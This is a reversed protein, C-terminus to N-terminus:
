DWPFQLLQFFLPLAHTHALPLCHGATRVQIETGRRELDLICSKEFTLLCAWSRATM